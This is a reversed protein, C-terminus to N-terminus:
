ELETYIFIVRILQTNIYFFYLLKFVPFIASFQSFRFTVLLHRQGSVFRNKVKILFFNSAFYLIIKLTCFEKLECSLHRIPM